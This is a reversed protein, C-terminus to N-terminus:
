HQQGSERYLFMEVVSHTGSQLVRSIMSLSEKLIVTHHLPIDMRTYMHTTCLKLFLMTTGALGSVSYQTERTSLDWIQPIISELVPLSHVRNEQVVCRQVYKTGTNQFSGCGFRGAPSKRSRGTLLLVYAISQTERGLTIQQVSGAHFLDPTSFSGLFQTLGKPLTFWEVVSSGTQFFAVCQGHWSLMCSVNQIVM